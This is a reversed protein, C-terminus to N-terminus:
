AAGPGATPAPLARALGDTLAGLRDMGAVSLALRYLAEPDAAVGGHRACDSFKRQLDEPTLPNHLSGKLHGVAVTLVAGTDLEISSHLPTDVRMGEPDPVTEVRVREMLGAASPDAVAAASFHRLSLFGEQLIRAAAYPLSFRAEMENKPRDFPLNRSLTEPLCTWVGKIREAGLGHKQRLELLGDLTKHASACCPFRKVLLGHKLLLLESGLRETAKEGRGPDAVSYLQQFSAEGTLFDTNASMGAAAMRAAMVAHQAAFGAQTPKMMSGFQKKSGAALSFAISMATATRQADLGMLRACAGATGIAGVTATSHWGKQFHQPNVVVGVRAHLELGVVYADLLAAGPLDREEALALLAPGLVASAHTFAPIFNDDFDLAHAATGNVLAAWPAHLREAGGVALSRGGKGWEGVAAVALRAAPDGAGALMCATVDVFADRVLALAAPDHGAPCEAAWQALQQLVSRETTMMVARREGPTATSREGRELDTGHCLM